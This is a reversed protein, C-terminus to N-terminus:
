IKEESARGSKIALTCLWTKVEETLLSKNMQWEWNGGVTGPVNMRADTDLSLIDQMPLIVWGAPSTYLDEILKRCTIKLEANERQESANKNPHILNQAKLWGLLTDNDHTGSYYVFNNDKETLFEELPTFQLVRMGPLGFIHKLINVEPTIFGLDEAIFPLDGFEKNLSELFRKGPGKMWHGKVATEAGAEIEWFAELGRFHDIRIYDYLRLTLRIREKWWSYNDSALAEWDYLPNGWLQGTECYYDPPVGAVKAPKGNEELVFFSRNVWVDCSDAAVFLPIDGILSIGRARAYQRVAQWQYFFTYQLFRNFEIEQALLLSYKTISDKTRAAIGQEWEYWPINGFHTKLARFLAYDDLWATNERQFAHYNQLSLYNTGAQEPTPGSTEQELMRAQFTSFVERLLEYKHASERPNKSELLKRKELVQESRLLEERLLLELSIFLPNGAFASDSQYPSGGLGTPNLPLVQWLSQRCEALFDIFYYAEKGFDGNGWISPLSSVAMLVGCSRTLTNIRSAPDIKKSWITRASLPKIRLTQSDKYNAPDGRENERSIVEGSLLDIVFPFPQLEGEMKVEKVQTSHRNILITIEEDKGSRKYGYVDASGYFSQFDGTQLVEYEARLRIIKKYWDQIEKDEHGWPYTGRNYPDSYGELGAEDGYYVCPVGPFTMQVLSLLKLRQVALRRASASIRYNRRESESLNGEPPAEGLVTLIRPRDHSGILNMAAYFNERPYNEYLSLIRNHLVSSDGLGLLFHLFMERWPYNMTADLENGWFYQRLYGYSEKHSADEWVEGILVAEPNIDKLVQRLEQIFEDPLEDAVDLRWGAIGKAMWKHIVSNESGYIFQRYSPNMEKVEPLTDVDWWCEYLDCTQKFNYWEFYPSDPSQYAGLGPYNGYKNFYISDSGTHSFVGDLIISIGLSKAKQVLITFTDEDGFAPDIRLYDATDYKHNSPSEFIPNFYIISVGLEKLYLLKEQVGTLNGGFFDWYTVKGKEDKIYVPTDNWNLHLLSSRRPTPDCSQQQGKTFRDVFIQYMVGRKYWIPVEAPRYVTIQYAPPNDGEWLQGKGGLREGNNGYYFTQSGTRIIFYYWVLGPTAPMEHEVEYFYHEFSFNYEGSFLNMTLVKEQGTEWLRLNCAEIPIECYIKLRFTIKRGCEVAGFPNRYFLDHSNHYVYLEM